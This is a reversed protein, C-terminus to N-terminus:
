HFLLEQYLSCIHTPGSLLRGLQLPLWCSWEATTESHTRRGQKWSNKKMERTKVVQHCHSVECIAESSAELKWASNQTETAYRTPLFRVLHSPCVCMWKSVTSRVRGLNLRRKAINRPGSYFAWMGVVTMKKLRTFKGEEMEGHLKWIGVGNIM